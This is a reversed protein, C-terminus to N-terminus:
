IEIGEKKLKKHNPTWWFLASSMNDPWVYLGDSFSLQRDLTSYILDDYTTGSEELRLHRKVRNLAAELTDDVWNTMGDEVLVNAYIGMTYLANFAIVANPSYHHCGYIRVSLQAMIGHAPPLWVALYCKNRSFREMKSVFATLDPSGYMGHACLVIDHMSLTADEWTQSIIDVNILSVSDLNKRLMEAM